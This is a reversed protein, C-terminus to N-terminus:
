KNPNTKQNIRSTSKKRRKGFWQSLNESKIRRGVEGGGRRREERRGGGAGGRAGEEALRRRRLGGM